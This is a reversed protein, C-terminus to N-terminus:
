TGDTRTRRHSRYTNAVLKHAFEMMEVEVERLSIINVALIRSNSYYNVCSSLTLNLETRFSTIRVRVVYATV